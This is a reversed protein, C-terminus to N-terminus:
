EAGLPQPPLPLASRIRRAERRRLTPLPAIFRGHRLSSRPAQRQIRTCYPRRRRLRRIHRRWRSRRGERPSPLALFRGPMWWKRRSGSLDTGPPTPPPSPLSHPYLLPASPAHNTAGAFFNDKRAIPHASPGTTRPRITGGIVGPVMSGLAALSSQPDGTASTCVSASTAHDQAQARAFWVCRGRRQGHRSLRRVRKGGLFSTRPCAVMAIMCHWHCGSPRSPTHRSGSPQSRKRPREFIYM